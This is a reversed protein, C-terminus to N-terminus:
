CIAINNYYIWYHPCIDIAQQYYQIAKKYQDSSTVTEDYKDDCQYTCGKNNTAVSNFKNLLIAHTYFLRAESYTKRFFYYDGNLM